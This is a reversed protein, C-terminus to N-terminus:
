LLRRAANRLDMNYGFTALRQTEFMGPSTRVKKQLVLENYDNFVFGYTAVSTNGDTVEFLVNQARFVIDGGAQMYINSSTSTTCNSGDLYISANSAQLKIGNNSLTEIVVTRDVKNLDFVHEDYLSIAVKGSSAIELGSLDKGYIRPLYLQGFVNYTDASPYGIENNSGITIPINAGITSYQMDTYM